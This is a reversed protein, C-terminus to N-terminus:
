GEADDTSSTIGDWSRSDCDTISGKIELSEGSAISEFRQMLDGFMEIDELLRSQICESSQPSGNVLSDPQIKLINKSLSSLIRFDQLLILSKLM